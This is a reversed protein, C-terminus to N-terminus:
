TEINKKAKMINRCMKGFKRQEKRTQWNTEQQKTALHKLERQMKHYNELRLQIKRRKPAGKQTEGQNGM